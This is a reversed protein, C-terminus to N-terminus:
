IPSPNHEVRAASEGSIKWALGFAKIQEPTPNDCGKWYVKLIGQSDEICDVLRDAQERSIGYIECFTKYAKQLRTVRWAESDIGWNMIM